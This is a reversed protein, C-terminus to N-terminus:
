PQLGEMREPITQKTHSEFKRLNACEKCIFYSGPNAIVRANVDHQTAADRDQNREPDWDCLPEQIDSM